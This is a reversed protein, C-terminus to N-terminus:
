YIQAMGMATLEMNTPIVIIMKSFHDVIVLIMNYGQSEPLEGILDVSIHEWPRSPVENPHLPSKPKQHHVKTRQCTECGNVYKRIDSQIYPWWYNHTILEQTKYWGPHGAAISDHHERSESANTGQFTFINKGPSLGKM